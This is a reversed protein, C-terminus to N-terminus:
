HRNRVTLERSVAALFASGWWFRELLVGGVLPGAAMELAFMTAWASQGGSSRRLLPRYQGRGRRRGRQGPAPFTRLAM